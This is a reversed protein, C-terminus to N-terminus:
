ILISRPPRRWGELFPNEISFVYDGFRKVNTIENLYINSNSQVLFNCHGFHHQGIHCPDACQADNHEASFVTINVKQEICDTGAECEVSHHTDIFSSALLSSAISFLLVFTVIFRFINLKKFSFLSAKITPEKEFMMLTLYGVFKVIVVIQKAQRYHM